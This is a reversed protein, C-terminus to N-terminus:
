PRFGVRVTRRVHDSTNPYSGHVTWVHFWVVDGAKGEPEVTDAIHYQDLPLHKKNANPDQVHVIPGKRHSGPLFRIGGNEPTTDDLYIVGIVYRGDRQPYFADDQHLPFPQGIRPPKSVITAQVVTLPPPADLLQGAIGEMAGTIATWPQETEVNFHGATLQPEAAPTMWPGRWTVAKATDSMRDVSACMEPLWNTVVHRTLVFGDRQYQALEAQTLTM